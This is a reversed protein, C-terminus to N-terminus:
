LREIVLVDKIKKITRIIDQLQKNDEVAITFVGIGKNDITTKLSVQSIKVDKRTIVSSLNALVGKRDLTIVKLRVPYTETRTPEWSVAIIREPDSNLIHKCDPHHITVGRGRTIFGTVPEGPVPHCCKSFHILMNSIGKVKIGKDARRWRVRDVAKGVLGPRKATKVGLREKLRGVIQKLSIKGLGVQAFLDEISNLSLEKSIALIDDNKVLNGVHLRDQRINRELMEKGLNVSDERDQRRLWQRIKTRARPTQVFDLWGESPHQRTSTLIEIIAGNELEYRLPVIKGNVKAGTCKEGVESHISYAFDIPTAGKPLAKIEGKPTFVYVQDTFLDMRVSEMFESPDKLSRQWELLQRLWLFQKEDTKSAVGSEKYKWHAAIGDEAIRDMEWSRIQVEMRQGLPSLLTTHLSQYMNEKPVSIYDKFRMPIQKWMSHIIGLVEYCEKVSPVIIRFAHVDYIQGASIGQAVMKKYISYLHKNRGKVIAKINSEQMKNSIQETIDRIFKETESRRQVVETKVKEYLEPELYYFCLDELGSKLWFIGMRGALPAYIDLTEQAILRQKEESQFGLTRMNHLRDALKVLIVRIDSAMALIMKRINEAQRQERSAFHIQGIKTVGEVINVTEQGFLRKIDEANADTDEITDHLFGAAICVVDMKLRALIYAVELPHSLYPEGSLRIQGQHASASYVYAKEILEINAKPHYELVRSTIDNLRIM